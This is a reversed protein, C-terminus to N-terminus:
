MMLMDELINNVRKIHGNTQLHYVTNLDLHTGFGVFEKWFM